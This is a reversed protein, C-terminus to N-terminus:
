PSTRSAKDAPEFALVRGSSGVLGAMLLTYVGVNAGADIPGDGPCRYRKLFLMEAPDPLRNFYIM